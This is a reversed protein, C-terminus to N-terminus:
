PNTIGHYLIVNNQLGCRDCLIRRPESLRSILGGILLFKWENRM